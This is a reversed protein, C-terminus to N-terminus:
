KIDSLRMREPGWTPGFVHRFEIDVPLWLDSDIRKWRATITEDGTTIKAAVWTDGAKKWTFRRVTGSRWTIQEIRDKHIRVSAIPSGDIAHIGASDAAEIHAGAFTDEFLPFAAPDRGTWMTIRDRYAFGLASATVPTFRADVAVHTDNWSTHQWGFGYLEDFTVTGDVDRQGRWVDDTGPTEVEFRASLRRATTPYRYIAQWAQRLAESGPGDPAPLSAAKLESSGLTLNRLELSEELLVNGRADVMVHRHRSPVVHPGAWQHGYEHWATGHNYTRRTVVYGPGLEATHWTEAGIREHTGAGVIRPGVVSFVPHTRTAGVMAVGNAGPRSETSNGILTRYPGWGDGNVSALTPSQLLIENHDALDAWSPRTYDQIAREIRQRGARAVGDSTAATAVRGTPDISFTGELMTNEVRDAMVSRDHIAFTGSLGPFTESNWRFWRRYAPGLLASGADPDPDLRVSWDVVELAEIRIGNYYSLADGWVLSTPTIRFHRESQELPGLSATLLVVGDKPASVSARLIVDVPEDLANRLGVRSVHLSSGGDIVSDRGISAGLTVPSAQVGPADSFLAETLSCSPNDLRGNALVAFQAKKRPLVVRGHRRVRPLPVRHIELSVPEGAHTGRIAWTVPEVSHPGRNHVELVLLTAGRISEDASVVRCTVKDLDGEAFTPPVAQAAAWGTLYAAALAHVITQVPAVYGRGHAM